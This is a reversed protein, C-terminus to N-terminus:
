KWGGMSIVKMEQMLSLNDKNAFFFLRVTGGKKGKRELTAGCRRARFAEGMASLANVILGGVLAALFM